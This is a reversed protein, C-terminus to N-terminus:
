SVENAFFIEAIRDGNLSYRKIIIAMEKQTFDAEPDNLKRSLTTRNIGLAEALSEGNDDHRLMEIKLEKANM